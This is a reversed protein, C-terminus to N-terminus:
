GGLSYAGPQIHRAIHLGFIPDVSKEILWRLLSQLDSGTTRSIQNDLVGTPLGCAELADEPEIGYDRAAHLFQRMVATSASGLLNNNNKM